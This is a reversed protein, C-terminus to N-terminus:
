MIALSILKGEMVRAYERERFGMSCQVTLQSDNITDTLMCM